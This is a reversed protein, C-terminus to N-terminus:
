RLVISQRRMPRRTRSRDVFTPLREAVPMHYKGVSNGTFVGLAILADEDTKVVRAIVNPLLHNWDSFATWCGGASWRRACGRRGCLAGEAGATAEDVLVSLGAQSAAIGKARCLRPSRCPPSVFLHGWAPWNLM